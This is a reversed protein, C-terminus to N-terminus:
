YIGSPYKGPPYLSILDSVSTALSHSNLSSWIAWSLSYNLDPGAVLSRWLGQRGLWNMLNYLTRHSYHNREPFPANRESLLALNVISLYFSSQAWLYALSPVSEVTNLAPESMAPLTTNPSFLPGWLRSVQPKPWSRGSNHPESCIRLGESHLPM